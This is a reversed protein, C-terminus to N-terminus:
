QLKIIQYRKDNKDTLGLAKDIYSGLWGKKVVIIAHERLFQEASEDDTLGNIVMSQVVLEKVRNAERVLDDDSYMYRTETAM